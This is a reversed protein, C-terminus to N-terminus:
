RQSQPSTKMTTGCPEPKDSAREWELPKSPEAGGIPFQRRLVAPPSKAEELRCVVLANRGFPCTYASGIPGHLCSPALKPRAFPRPSGLIANCFLVVAPSCAASSPGSSEAVSTWATTLAILRPADDRNGTKPRGPKRHHPQDAPVGIRCVHPPYGAVIWLFRFATFIKPRYNIQGTALPLCNTLKRFNTSAPLNGV